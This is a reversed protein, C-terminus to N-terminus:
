IYGYAVPLIDGARELDEHVGNLTNVEDTALEQYKAAEDDDRSWVALYYLALWIVANPAVTGYINSANSDSMPTPRVYAHVTVPAPYTLLIVNGSMAFKLKNPLPLYREALVDSLITLRAVQDNVLVTEVAILNELQYQLEGAPYTIAQMMGAIRLIQDLKTQAQAILSPMVNLAASDTRGSYSKVANLIESYTM